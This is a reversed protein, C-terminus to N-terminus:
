ILGLIRERVGSQRDTRSRQAEQTLTAPAAGRVNWPLHFSEILGAELGESGKLLLGNWQHDPPHALLIAVSAGKGIHGRIIENLRVNTRQSAGPKRYFGLRQRVSQSALGVYQVIGDIAFAYVGAKSPLDISHSLDRASNLEWCGVEAFGSKLLRDVTLQPKTM